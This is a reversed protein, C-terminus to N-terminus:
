PQPKGYVGVYRIGSKVFYGGVVWNVTYLLDKGCAAYIPACEQGPKVDKIWQLLEDQKDRAQFSAVAKDILAQGAQYCRLAQTRISPWTM